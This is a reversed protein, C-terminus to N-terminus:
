LRDSVDPVLLACLGDYACLAMVELQLEKARYFNSIKELQAQIAAQFHRGEPDAAIVSSTLPTSVVRGVECGAACTRVELPLTM